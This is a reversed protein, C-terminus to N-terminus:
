PDKEGRLLEFDGNKMLQYRYSPVLEVEFEMLLGLNGKKMKTKIEFYKILLDVL